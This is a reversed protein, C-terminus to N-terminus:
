EDQKWHAEDDTSSQADDDEGEFLEAVYSEYEETLLATPHKMKLRKIASSVEDRSHSQNGNHDLQKCVSCGRGGKM